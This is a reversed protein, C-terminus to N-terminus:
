DCDTLAPLSKNQAETRKRDMKETLPSQEEGILSLLSCQSILTGYICHM